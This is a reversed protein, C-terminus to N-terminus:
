NNSRSIDLAQSYELVAQKYAKAKDYCKGKLLHLMYKDSLKLEGELMAM